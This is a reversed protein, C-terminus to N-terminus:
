CPSGRMSPSSRPSTKPVLKVVDAKKRSPKTKAKRTPQRRGTTDIIISTDMKSVGSREAVARVKTATGTAVGGVRRSQRSM